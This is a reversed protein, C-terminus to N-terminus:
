SNRHRTIAVCAEWVDGNSSMGGSRCRDNRAVSRSRRIRGGHDPPGTSRASMYPLPELEPHFERHAQTFNARRHNM